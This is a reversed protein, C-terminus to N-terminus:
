IMNIKAIMTAMSRRIMNIKAIKTAMARKINLIYFVM